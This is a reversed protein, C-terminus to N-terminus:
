DSLSLSYLFCRLSASVGSCIPLDPHSLLRWPVRVSNSSWCTFSSVESALSALSSCILSYSLIRCWLSLCSSKLTHSIMCSLTLITATPKITNNSFVNCAWDKAFSRYLFHHPIKVWALWIYMITNHIHLMNLTREPKSLVVGLHIHVSYVHCFSISKEHHHCPDRVLVEAVAPDLM